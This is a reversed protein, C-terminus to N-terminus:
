GVWGECLVETQALVLETAAKAMDPPYGYKRLINKVILRLKARAGEKSAWDITVNQRVRDVLEHALFKLKEDGMMQRASANEALADYFAVEEDTLGLTEGRNAAAHVDKALAILEEIVQATEIARNRYKAIAEDLLKSFSRGLVVNRRFHSKIGETLLKRLLEVALNKYPLHKVDEFFQESLISIDPNPLGAAEFVNMIGSTSVAGAVIQRIAGELEDQSRSGGTGTTKVLAARVAQFFAVQNRLALAEENPMALAFITSLEGVADVYRKAGGHQALIHEQAPPLLGLREQPTGTFFRSYDFGLFMAAVIEYKEHLIAVLEDQDITTRGQGGSETYTSL